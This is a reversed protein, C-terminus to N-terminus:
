NTPKGALCRWRYSLLAASTAYGLTLGWWLGVPGLDFAFALFAGLPIAVGRAGVAGICMPVLTDQRGRLVRDAILKIAEFMIYIAAIWAILEILAVTQRLM